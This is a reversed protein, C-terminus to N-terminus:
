QGKEGTVNEPAAHLTKRPFVRISLRYHTGSLRNMTESRNNTECFLRAHEPLSKPGFRITGTVITRNNRVDTPKACNLRGDGARSRM